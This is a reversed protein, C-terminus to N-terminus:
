SPGTSASRLVVSGLSLAFVDTDTLSGMLEDLQLVQRRDKRVVAVHWESSDRRLRQMTVIFLTHLAAVTVRFHFPRMIRSYEDSLDKRIM